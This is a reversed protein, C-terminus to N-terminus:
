TERDTAAALDQLASAVTVPYPKAPGVGRLDPPLRALESAAHRRGDSLPEQRSLRRGERMVQRILPEGAQPDGHVTLVDGMMQGQADYNRYVQKRGPWTAKGTSRKRRPRGAYEQLKYACDLYPADASTSLHTGIGFADIPAEAELAKAMFYEDMSSSALIRVDALGGRDLIRRVSQALAVIDGSDLRVGRIEIGLRNLEPALEVVLRAAAETDYTDILFVVDKPWSRAFSLFAERENAHAQIFSHAVTGFAPVGFIREAELTASGAFGALYSARAALLGAEAGHARRLGFDILLADPRVLVMRAAKSAVVTQFHLLNIIRSEVFQAEPLAATIRLIPENAFFVSGEAMAHVEGRFRFDALWDVFKPDFRGTSRLWSIEDPKFCVAELYDLVQDLGAALLFHRKDPLRRVFFEFVATDHMGQQWYAQLMTLQYLDTLM